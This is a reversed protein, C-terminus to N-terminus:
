LPTVKRRIQVQDMVGKSAALKWVSESGAHGDVALSNVKQKFRIASCPFFGKAYSKPSRNVHSDM